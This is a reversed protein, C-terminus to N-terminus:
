EALYQLPHPCHNSWLNNEDELRIGYSKKCQKAAAILHPLKRCSQPTADVLSMPRGGESDCVTRGITGMDIDKACHPRDSVETNCAPANKSSNALEPPIGRLWIDETGHGQGAQVSDDEPFLM